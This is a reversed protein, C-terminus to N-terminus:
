RASAESTEERILAPEAVSYVGSSEPSQEFRVSVLRGPAEGSLHGWLDMLTQRATGERGNPGWAGGGLVLEVDPRDHLAKVISCTLRRRTEETPAGDLGCLYAGGVLPRGEKRLKGLRHLVRREFDAETEDELQTEVVANQARRRISAGWSPWDAGKELVFLAYTETNDEM